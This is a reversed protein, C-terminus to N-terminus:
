CAGWDTRIATASRAVGKTWGTSGGTSGSSRASFIPTRSSSLRTSSTSFSRSTGAQQTGAGLAQVPEIKMRGRCVGRQIEGEETSLWRKLIRPRAKTEPRGERGVM